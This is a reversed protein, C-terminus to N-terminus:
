YRGESVPELYYISNRTVIDISGDENIEYKEIPSTLISKIFDPCRLLCREDPIIDKPDIYVLREIRSKSAYDTKEIGDHTTVSKIKYLKTEKM